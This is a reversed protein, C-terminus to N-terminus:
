MREWASNPSRCFKRIPSKEGSGDIISYVSRCERDNTITPNSAVSYGEQDGVSWREPMGSAVSNQEAEAIESIDFNFRQNPAASSSSQSIDPAATEVAEMTDSAELSAVEADHTSPKSEITQTMEPLSEAATAVAKVGSALGLTKTGFLVPAALFGLVTVAIAAPFFFGYGGDSKPAKCGKCVFVRDHRFSDRTGVSRGSNKTLGWHTRVSSTSKRRVQVQRMDTKPRIIHCTACETEAVRTM